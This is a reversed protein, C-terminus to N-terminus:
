DAAGAAIMAGLVREPTAPIKRLRVGTAHGIANVISPAVAVLTIEGVGKAGFPGKPAPNEVLITRIGYPTDLSGAVKYDMMTPNVHRGQDFVVEEFLGYGMGQAFAGQIQGECASPNLAKGVDQAIWTEIVETKGTAMDVEVETVEACYTFVGNGDYAFGRILARKPDFKESEFVWSHQGLIPGGTVFLSRGAVAAFPLEADPAGKVGVRGGPRLELDEVSAELMESAHKLIEEKVREAAERVAVGVTYTTRSASTQYDYPSADTDPNAYNIQDLSLGLSAACIQALVTDAGEGIDVAGTNVTITGDENLRVHAGSALMGSIHAAVSVGVGRKKGRSAINKGIMRRERWRSAERVKELCEVLSGSDVPQGGLWPERERIANKIRLDIPDIGLKEAIEDLQCESAFTAQPNGFGRFAGARVKNTYVGWATVKHHPIRYPGRSFYALVSTVLPTEDAYAGGDLYARVERAVLTGDKKAGTKIYIRTAHRTKTITMDDDRSLTMKVPRGAALALFATLPQNTTECKGGFGGGIRPAIVRVKSMPLGTARAVLKQIRFISQMSSWITLKGQADVEAVTSSPEMYMHEQAPTEYVGEIIVDCEAWAKDADGEVFETMACGNLHETPLPIPCPYSDRDEHLIPAGPKMAEEPDFVAELEEFEFDILQLAKRAIALTDAAVAAIPEGVYRVKGKALAVQDEIFPGTYNAPVDEGTLVVHVGPLAKAAATDVSLIRAHAYPSGTMAAHLMGPRVIDDSYIAKGTVKERVELRPVSKGIVDDLAKAPTTGEPAM